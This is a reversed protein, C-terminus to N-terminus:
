QVQAAALDRKAELNLLVDASLQSIDEFIADPEENEMTERDKTTLLAVVRFGASVM